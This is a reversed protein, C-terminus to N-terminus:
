DAKAGSERVVKAWKVVEAKIYDSFQTPTSSLPDLGLTQYRDLVDRQQNAREIEANIKNVIPMPTGPSTLLGYWTIAEYGPVGGQALTPLDPALPTRQASTVGIIKLKGSRVHPLGSPLSSALLQLQGSLSAVTSAGSGNYPVHTLQIGTMSAFLVTALHATTGTGPSGYTVQGPKARAFAILEQVSNIPVSPHAIIMSPTGAVLSIATVDKVPDYALKEYLSVSIAHGSSVMILLYGNPTAKAVQETAINGGAGPRNEVIVSQGWANGFKQAMLRATIDVGGGPAYGVLIRVTRNPYNLSSDVQALAAGSAAMGCLALSLAISSTKCAMTM